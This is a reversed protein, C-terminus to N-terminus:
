KMVKIFFIQRNLKLFKREYETTIIEAYKSNNHLDEIVKVITFKKFKKIEELSYQFLDYQDTKIELTGGKKLLFYYKELFSFNTLRRKSHKKKFWPDPFNLYITNIEKLFFENVNIADSNIFVLNSFMNLYENKQIKKIAMFLVASVKELGIYNIKKNKSKELIFSGKGMGIELEIPFNNKFIESNWKNRLLYPNKIVFNLNEFSQKADIKTRLRGM